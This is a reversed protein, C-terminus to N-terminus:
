GRLELGWPDVISQSIYYIFITFFQWFLLWDILAWEGLEPLAKLQIQVSGKGSNLSHVKRITRKRQEM